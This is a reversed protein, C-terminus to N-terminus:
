NKIFIKSIKIEINLNINVIRSSQYLGVVKRRSHSNINKYFLFITINKRINKGIVEKATSFSLGEQKNDKLDYLEKYIDRITFKKEEKLDLQNAIKHINEENIYSIICNFSCFIGDTLYYETEVPTIDYSDSKLDLVSALKTKTLNKELM